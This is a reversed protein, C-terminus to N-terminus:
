ATAISIKLRNMYCAITFTIRCINNIYLGGFTFALYNM